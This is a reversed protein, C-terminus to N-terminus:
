RRKNGHRRSFKRNKRIRSPSPVPTHEAIVPLVSTFKDTPRLLRATRSSLRWILRQRHPTQEQANYKNLVASVAEHTSVFSDDSIKCIKQVEAAFEVLRLMQHAPTVSSNITSPGAMSTVSNTVDKNADLRKVAADLYTCLLVLAVESSRLSACNGDCAIMELRLFLESEMVVNAYIDGIGLHSAVTHFMTNFLQLFTLSTIPQVAPAWELKNRIVGSMRKLDGGTCKCQSISVLHDADLSQAMQVAAIHFASVSICAMHKPRAKMKTLFRDMLNIAVFFVDSPLDYWVKLCRLVHASGDRAGITIEDNQTTTLLQLNPQYKVELVLAEQLQELLPHIADPVPFGSTDM